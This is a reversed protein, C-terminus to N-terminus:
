FSNYNPVNVFVIGNPKAVRAAEEVAKRVDRVHELIAIGYVIDFSNDSFPLDEACAKKIYKEPSEIGNIRLIELAQEYRGMYPKRNGPEIGTVNLNKSILYCLQFGCGSGIELIKPKRDHFHRELLPKLYIYSAKCNKRDRELAIYPDLHSVGKSYQRMSNVIDNIIRESLKIQFEESEINKM